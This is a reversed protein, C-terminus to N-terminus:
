YGAKRLADMQASSVYAGAPQAIPVTVTQNNPMFVVERHNVYTQHIQTTPIFNGFEDQALRDMPLCEGGRALPAYSEQGPRLSALKKFPLKCTATKGEFLFKYLCVVHFWMALRFALPTMFFGGSQGRLQVLQLSVLPNVTSFQLSASTSRDRHRNAAHLHTKWAELLGALSPDSDIVISSDFAVYDERARQIKPSLVDAPGFQSFDSSSAANSFDYTNQFTRVKVSKTRTQHRGQSDTYSETRSESHYSEVYIGVRLPSTVVSGVYAGIKQLAVVSSEGNRASNELQQLAQLTSDTFRLYMKHWIAIILWFTPFIVLGIFNCFCNEWPEGLKKNYNDQECQKKNEQCTGYTAISSILGIQLVWLVLELGFLLKPIPKVEHKAILTGTSPPVAVSVAMPVPQHQSFGGDYDPPVPGAVPASPKGQNNLMM